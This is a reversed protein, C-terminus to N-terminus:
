FRQRGVFVLSGATREFVFEMYGAFIILGIGIAWFFITAPSPRVMPLIGSKDVIYTSMSGIILIFFGAGIFIIAKIRILWIDFDSRAPKRM